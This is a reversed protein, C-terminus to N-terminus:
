RRKIKHSDALERRLELLDRRYRAADGYNFFYTYRSHPSRVPIAHKIPCWHQETRAVVETAYACLGNVYSCYACNVRELLNLYQLRGRDFIFYDERPVRAIGYVRFCVAQYIALCLDLVAFPLLQLYLVPATVATAVRGHVLYSFLGTKLKRQEALTEAQFVATGDVWRYHFEPIPNESEPTMDEGVSAM